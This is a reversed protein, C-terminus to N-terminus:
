KSHFLVYFYIIMSLNIKNWSHLRLEVKSFDTLIICLLLIDISLPM